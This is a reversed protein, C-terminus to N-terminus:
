FSVGFIKITGKSIPLNEECYPLGTVCKGGETYTGTTNRGSTLANYKYARSGPSLLYTGSFGSPGQITIQSGGSCSCAQIQTVRGGFGNVFAFGAETSKKGVFSFIALIIVLFVFSIFQKDKIM